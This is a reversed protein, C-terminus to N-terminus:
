RHLVGLLFTEPVTTSTSGEYPRPRNLTKSVLLHVTNQQFFTEVVLRIFVATVM